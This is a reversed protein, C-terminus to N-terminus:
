IGLNLKLQNMLYDFQAETLNNISISKKFKRAIFDGVMDLTIDTNKILEQVQVFQSKPKTEQPEQGGQREPQIPKKSSEKPEGVGTYKTTDKEFYVDAGVGLAKCAVSLADTYAKKYAEDDTYLGNKETVVFKAGGVGPIAESWQGDIKVYLKIEVNAVHEGDAGEAIWMRVIEVKWGIGCIGFQETLTKIRWMPNIDTMGNLRGGTIKKKAIDPVVRVRDYVDLNGM